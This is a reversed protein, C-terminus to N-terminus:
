ASGVYGIRPSAISQDEGHSMMAVNDDINGMNIDDTYREFDITTPETMNQPAMELGNVHQQRQRQHEPSSIEKEEPDSSPAHKWKETGTTGIQSPIIRDNVVVNQTTATGGYVIQQGNVTQQTQPTSSNNNINNNNMLQRMMDKLETADDKGEKMGNVIVVLSESLVKQTDELSDIKVTIIDGRTEEKAVKNGIAAM